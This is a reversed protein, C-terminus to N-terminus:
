HMCSSIRTIKPLKPFPFKGSQAINFIVWEEGAPKSFGASRTSLIFTPTTDQFNINNARTYSLPIHWLADPITGSLQFREQLNLYTKLVAYYLTTIDSIRLKSIM